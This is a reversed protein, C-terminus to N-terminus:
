WNLSLGLYIKNNGLLYIAPGVICEALLVEFRYGLVPSIASLKPFFLLQIESGVGVTFFPASLGAIGSSLQFSGCLRLFNGLDVSFAPGSRSDFFLGSNVVSLETALSGDYYREYGFLSAYRVGCGLMFGLNFADNLAFLHYSELEFDPSVLFEESPIISNFLSGAIDLQINGDYIKKAFVSQLLLIALFPTAILKKM